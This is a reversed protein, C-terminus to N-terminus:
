LNDAQINHFQANLRNVSRIFEGKKTMVDEYDLLSSTLVHGLYKVKDKWPVNQRNVYIKRPETNTGFCVCETKKSNFTVGYESAVNDATDLFTQLGSISVM